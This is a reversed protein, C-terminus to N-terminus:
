RFYFPFTFIDMMISTFIIVALIHFHVSTDIKYGTIIVKWVFFVVVVIWWWIRHFIVLDVTGIINRFKWNLVIRVSLIFIFLYFMFVCMCFFVFLLPRVLSCCISFCSKYLFTHSMRSQSIIFLIASNISCVFLKLVMKSSLIALVIIVVLNTWISCERITNANRHIFFKFNLCFFRIFILCSFSYFLSFTIFSFYVFMGCIRCFVLFVVFIVLWVFWFKFFMSVCWIVFLFFFCYFLLIKFFKCVFFIIILQGFVFLIFILCLGCVCLFYLGSMCM